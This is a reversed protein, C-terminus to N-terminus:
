IYNQRYKPFASLNPKASIIQATCTTKPRVRCIHLLTHCVRPVGDRSGCRLGGGRCQLGACDPRIGYAGVATCKESQNNNTCKQQTNCVGKAGGCLACPLGGGRCQLGACNPRIGYAGVATCNISKVGGCLGRWLGKDRCQLGACDPRIGYAGVANCKESQNNNTCKQQTNCVGKAGGRLASQALLAIIRMLAAFNMLM